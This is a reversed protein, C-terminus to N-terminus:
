VLSARVQEHLDQLVHEALADFRNAGDGLKCLATSMDADATTSSHVPTAGDGLPAIPPSRRNAAPSSAAVVALALRSPSRPSGSAGSGHPSGRRRPSKAASKCPSRGAAVVVVNVDHSALM